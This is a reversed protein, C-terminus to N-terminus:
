CYSTVGSRSTSDEKRSHSHGEALAVGSGLAVLAAVLVCSWTRLKM